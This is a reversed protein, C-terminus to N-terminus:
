KKIFAIRKNIWVSDSQYRDSEIEFFTMDVCEFNNKELFNCVDKHLTEGNFFPYTETEIHMIKINQLHNELSLLLDYTAGEVDIKLIDIEKINYQNILTSMKFCPLKLTKTGYLQGRDYIGHIGNIDKQHYVIDGDYSAIVANIGVVNLNDKIFKTYNEPLGEIAYAISDKFWVVQM